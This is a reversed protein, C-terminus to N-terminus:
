LLPLVYGTAILGVAEKDSVFNNIYILLPDISVIETTYQHPECVFPKERSNSFLTQLPSFPFGYSYSAVLLATIAYSSLVIKLLPLETAKPGQCINSSKFHLTQLSNNVLWQSSTLFYQPINTWLMFLTNEHSLSLGM